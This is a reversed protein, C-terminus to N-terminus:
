GFVWHWASSVADSVKNVVTKATDVMKDGSEVTNKVLSDSMSKLVDMVTNAAKKATEVVTDGVYRAADVTTDAIVKTMADADGHCEKLKQMTKKAGSVTDKLMQSERVMKNATDIVKQGGNHMAKGISAVDVEVDFDMGAGLAAGASMKFKGDKYSVEAKAGIGLKVHAGGSVQVGGINADISGGAKVATLEAGGGAKLDVKGDKVTLGVDAKASMKAVETDGKLKANMDKSGVKASTDAKLATVSAGAGLKAKLGKDTIKCDADAQVKTDIMKVSNSIEVDDTVTKEQYSYEQDEWSAASATTVLATSATMLTVAAVMGTLTRKWNKFM